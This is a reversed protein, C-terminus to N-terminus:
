QPRGERRIGKCFYRISDGVIKAYTALENRETIVGLGTHHAGPVKLVVRFRDQKTWCHVRFHPLVWESFFLESEQGRFREVHNNHIRQRLSQFAAINTRRSDQRTRSRTAQKKSAPIPAICFGGSIM